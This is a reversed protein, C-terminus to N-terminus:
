MRPPTRVRTQPTLPRRVSTAMPCETSRLARVHGTPHWPQDGRTVARSRRDGEATAEATRDGRRVTVTVRVSGGARGAGTSFGVLEADNAAAVTRAADIGGSVGALAAADAAHQAGAQQAAAVVVRAVIVIALAVVVVGCVALM